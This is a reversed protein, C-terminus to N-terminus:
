KQSCFRYCGSGVAFVAANKEMRLFKVGKVKDIPIGSETVVSADRAPVYVNATTNAPITVEMTLKDGERKWNSVIRGYLCDHHCNVWSLDGVMAPKIIFNQMGYASPDPRIGAVARTFYGAIGTYCTHIRSPEGTIKWYEPWTTEGSELFYGYGPYETSTLCTYLLDAREADEVIYKLLIPLGSSGTDLYPKRKSIEEVFNDLVAQREHEPTIGTYLPFAMALQRGDIYTKSDENFFHQHVSKRLHELRTSYTASDDMKGLIAAAQVVVDLCYAYVCNNFLQAEPTDGYESGHPTAWDGLFRSAKEYATLVGETSVSQHLFDLWKKMPQYAEALQRKDGYAKYFEWSLTVPASSWLTGGAGKYVQPAITNVFGDERQVDFWDRAAKRYYAASEYNPIACGWSCALAIEGYGFRERHPCDMTVGNVTCALYTRLDTEYIDNLLGNSCEFSGIRKRDNTIVYGRIDKPEPKFSLGEVTVWRGAMYNFRHCFTGTGSADFIYRSEQDFEITEEVRNATMIKVTDGAKGNRLDIEFWGTYNRGMDVRYRGNEGTISAPSLTEVKRDPEQMEASLILSKEYCTADTWDRDDFAPLNWDAIYSGADILEGGYEGEGGGKWLGLNESSSIKCKWSRDTHLTVGNSMNVQCKFISNQKWVGKGYSGDSRAWGPGTWVAIVNDGKKLASTIDYTIYLGRKELNTVGPSLVSTGIREGNVYLEHYGISCLYAFSSAPVGELSFKKRYWIHRINDAEKLRIWEGQWDAPDLLGMTWIAPQSWGSSEEKSIWVRVKWFCQKGSELQKGNYEVNVSQDSEIVDSNWLDGQDKKLLEPTSAVLVQFATQKIGRDNKPDRAEMKWSLRPKEVDIGLPDMLYECRLDTITASDQAVMSAPLMLSFFAFITSAIFVLTKTQTKWRPCEPAFRHNTM